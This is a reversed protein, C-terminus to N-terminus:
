HISYVWCEKKGGRIERLSTMCITYVPSDIKLETNYM